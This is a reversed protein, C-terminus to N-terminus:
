DYTYQITEIGDASELINMETRGQDCIKKWIRTTAKRIIYDDDAIIINYEKNCPIIEIVEKKM